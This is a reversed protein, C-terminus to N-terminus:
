IEVKAALAVRASKVTGICISRTGLNKGVVHCSLKEELCETWNTDPDIERKRVTPM